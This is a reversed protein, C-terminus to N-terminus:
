QDAPIKEYEQASLNDYYYFDPKNGVYNLNNANVYRHPFHGKQVPLEFIKTLKDLSLNLLNLSDVFSIKIYRHLDENINSIKKIRIDLKIIINDRMTTNLIYYDSGKNLNYQLLVNYIFVIDYHGLNHAYFLYNNYKNTLMSDICKLILEESQINPYDTLYYLQPESDLKTYFGLAYVRALNSDDRFTELDFTGFLTNRDTIPKVRPKIPALDNKISYEMVKTDQVTLTVNGMTRDFSNPYKPNTTDKASTIFIGTYYDYILRLYSNDDLKKSIIISKNKVNPAEYLFLKDNPTFKYDTSKILNLYTKIEPGSINYGYYNLDTSLPLLNSNFEKKTKKVNVIQKNLPIDNINKLTLEQPIKVPFYMIELVSVEEMFNYMDTTVEIRLLILEYLKKYFDEDHENQIIVGIQPGCMKFTYDKLTGIKLIISYTSNLKFNSMIKARFNEYIFDELSFHIFHTNNHNM